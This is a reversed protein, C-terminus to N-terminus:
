SALFTMPSQCLRRQVCAGAVSCRQRREVRCNRRSEHRDHSDGWALAQCPTPDVGYRRPTYGSDCSGATALGVGSTVILTQGLPHTHWATRAGPEFTVTGGSVRAGGAGQFRGDIRASGTFSDPSGATSPQAGAPSVTVVPLEDASANIALLLLLAHALPFRAALELRSSAYPRTYSITELM